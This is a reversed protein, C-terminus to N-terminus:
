TSPFGYCLWLGMGRLKKRYMSSVLIVEWACAQASVRFLDACVHVLFVM